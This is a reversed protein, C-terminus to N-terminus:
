LASSPAPKVVRIHDKGVRTGIRDILDNWLNVWTKVDEHSYAIVYFENESLFNGITVTSDIGFDIAINTVWRGDKPFSGSGIKLKRDKAFKSVEDLLIAAENGPTATVVVHALPFYERSRQGLAASGLLTFGGIMFVRRGLITRRMKARAIFTATM